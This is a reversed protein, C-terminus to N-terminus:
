QARARQVSPRARDCCPRGIVALRELEAQKGAPEDVPEPGGGQAWSREVSLRAESLARPGPQRTRAGSAFKSAFELRGWPRRHTAISSVCTTWRLSWPTKAVAGWGLRQRGHRQREQGVGPLSSTLNPRQDTSAAKHANPM